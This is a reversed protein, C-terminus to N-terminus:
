MFELATLEQYPIEWPRRCNTATAPLQSTGLQRTTIHGAACHCALDACAWAVRGELLNCGCRIDLMTSTITDLDSRQIPSATPQFSLPVELRVAGGVLGLLPDSPLSAAQSATEAAAQSAAEAAPQSQVESGPHLCQMQENSDMLSNLVDDVLDIQWQTAAPPRTATPASSSAELRSQVGPPRKKIMVRWVFSLLPDSLAANSTVSSRIHEPVLLLHLNSVCICRLSTTSAAGQQM